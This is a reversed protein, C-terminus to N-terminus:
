CNISISSNSFLLKEIFQEDMSLEPLITKSCSNLANYKVILLKIKTLKSDNSRYSIAIKLIDSFALANEYNFSISDRIKRTLSRYTVNFSDSDGELAYFLLLFLKVEIEAHAFQKLSVDNLLKTLVKIGLLHNSSSYYAYAIFNAYLIKEVINEENIEIKELSNILLVENKNFKSLAITSKFFNFTFYCRNCHVKDCKQNAIKDFYQQAKKFLEQQIFYEFHLVDLYKIIFRYCKDNVNSNCLLLTKNLLEEVSNDVTIESSSKAFLSFQIHIINKFVLLHDSPYLNSLNNMEKVYFVLRSLDQEEKNLYYEGLKQNFDLLVSEGKDIALSNAVASNYKQCYEYYKDTNIYIKKFAHYVIVLENQMDYKVLDLEIKKIIAIATERPFQFILNDINAVNKLIESREDMINRFLYDQIKDALRSKLTYFAANSVNLKIFIEKEDIKQRYLDFLKLFKQSKNQKFQNSISLFDIEDLELIVKNLVM